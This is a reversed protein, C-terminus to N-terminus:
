IYLPMHEDIDWEYAQDNQSPVLFQHQLVVGQLGRYIM